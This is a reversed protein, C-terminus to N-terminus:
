QNTNEEDIVIPKNESERYENKGDIVEYDGKEEAEQRDLAKKTKHSTVITLILMVVAAAILIVGTLILVLTERSSSTHYAIEVAVGVGVLIAGFLIEIVPMTLKARRNVIAYIAYVLLLVGMVMLLVSVFNVVGYIFFDDYKLQLLIVLVGLSIEFGSVVMPSQDEEAQGRALYLVTRLVGDLIVFGSVGYAIVREITLATSAQEPNHLVGAVIALVGSVLLVLSEVTNWISWFKRIKKNRQVQKSM